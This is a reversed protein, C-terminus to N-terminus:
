REPMDLVAGIRLPSHSVHFPILLSEVPARVVVLRAGLEGAHQLWVADDREDPVQLVPSHAM